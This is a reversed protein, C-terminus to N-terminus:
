LFYREIPEQYEREDTEYDVPGNKVENLYFDSNVSSGVIASDLTYENSCGPDTTASGDDNWTCDFQATNENYRKTKKIVGSIIITEFVNAGNYDNVTVVSDYEVESDWEQKTIKGDEVIQVQWQGAREKRTARSSAQGYVNTYFKISHIGDREIPHGYEFFAYETGGDATEIVAASCESHPTVSGDIYGITTKGGSVTLIVDRFGTAGDEIKGNEVNTCYAATKVQDIETNCGSLALVVCVGLAYKM